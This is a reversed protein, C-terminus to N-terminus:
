AGTGVEGTRDDRDVAADGRSTSSARGVFRVRGDAEEVIVDSFGAAELRGPLTVPDIPATLHTVRRRLVDTTMGPGAGVELVDAGLELHGLAWPLLEEEVFTAWEPSACLQLHVENV